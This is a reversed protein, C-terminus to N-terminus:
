EKARRWWCRTVVLGAIPVIILGAIWPQIWFRVPHVGVAAIPTHNYISSVSNARVFDFHYSDISGFRQERFGIQHSQPGIMFYRNIIPGNIFRQREAFSPISVSYVNSQAYTDAAAAFVAAALIASYFKRKM